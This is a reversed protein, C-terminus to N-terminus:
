ESEQSQAFQALADLVESRTQLTNITERFKSAGRLGSAYWAIHKRMELLGTRAGYLAIAMEFHRSAMDIRMRPTIVPADRGALTAAIESFLFPDGQAARGVMVADCGTEERMQVADHGSRIDGNGFVPVKVACKVDRIISWDAMGSYQQARTRAHVTIAGAGNQECIKAIEVANISKGDWGARIKASVPLATARAAARVIQGLLAPERMLASGEGAGTIKPAPCGFNLDIFEFGAGALSQAAAAIFDPERGFLQLGTAGEGPLRTTLLKAARNEGGSYMWGKASLMESVAWRAGQEFCILRMPADTVGAMPALGAGGSFQRFM